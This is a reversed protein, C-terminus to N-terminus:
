RFEQPENVRYKSACWNWPDRMHFYQGDQECEQNQRLGIRLIPVGRGLLIPLLQEVAAVEITPDDLEGM